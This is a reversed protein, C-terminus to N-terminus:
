EVTFKKLDAIIDEPFDQPVMRYEVKTDPYNEMALIAEKQESTIFVTNYLRKRGPRDYIGGINVEPIAIGKELLRLFVAPDKACLFIGGDSNEQIKEPADAEDSVVCKVTGSVAMELLMTKLSDHASEDDVVIVTDVDYAKLWSLAVQGHILREDVRAIIVSM